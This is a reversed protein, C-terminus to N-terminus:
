HTSEVCIASYSGGVDDSFQVCTETSKLGVWLSDSMPLPSDEPWRVFLCLTEEFLVHLDVIHTQTVCLALWSENVAPLFECVHLSM